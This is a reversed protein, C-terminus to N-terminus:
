EAGAAGLSNEVVFRGVMRGIREGEVTAARWHFGVYIRSLNNDAVAADVSEYTRPAGTGATSSMTFRTTGPVAAKTPDDGM